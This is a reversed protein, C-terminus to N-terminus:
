SPGDGGGDMQRRVTVLDMALLKDEPDGAIELCCHKLLDIGILCRPIPLDRLSCIAGTLHEVDVGGLTEIVVAYMPSEPLGAGFRDVSEALKRGLSSNYSRPLALADPCGTDIVATKSFSQHTLHCRFTIGIEFRRNDLPTQIDPPM